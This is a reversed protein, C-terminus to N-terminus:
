VTGATARSRAAFASPVSMALWPEYGGKRLARVAALVATFDDDPLLVRVQRPYSRMTISGRSASSHSESASRAPAGGHALGPQTAAHHVANPLPSSSTSVAYVLSPLSAPASGTARRRPRTSASTFQCLG